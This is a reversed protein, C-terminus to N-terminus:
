KLLGGLIARYLQYRERPLGKAFAEDETYKLCAKITKPAGCGIRVRKDTMVVITFPLLTIVEIVSTGSLDSGSLDSWRLNSGSLDSGSLNSGRLNSGSLNSGRLDSWRLDSGSLDSGRLDSGSLDSGRLDPIIEPHERRWKNWIPIGEKFIKVHEANAM